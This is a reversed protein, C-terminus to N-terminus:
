SPYIGLSQYNETLRRVRSRAGCLMARHTAYDVQGADYRYCADCKTLECINYLLNYCNPPPDAYYSSYRDAFRDAYNYHLRQLRCGCRSPKADTHKCAEFHHLDFCM